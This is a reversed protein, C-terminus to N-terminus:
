GTLGCLEGLTAPGILTLSWVARSAGIYVLQTRPEEEPAVLIVATAEIGKTRHVTECPVV